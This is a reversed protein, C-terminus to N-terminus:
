AAARRLRLTTAAALLTVGAALLLSTRIGTRFGDGVTGHVAGGLLSGFVAVALAGGLQRTANFVGSAIGALREPVANLLLGTVPPIIAPGAIGVVTMLASIAAVPTGSPSLALATLGATMLLLGGGVLAPAGVGEAIRASAPTLIAGALMMPLFVLGTQAASLGRVEQLYLSQVFPLGYYAVVFAFGVVAAVQVTRSRALEGPVMPHRGRRQTTVFTLAAGGAAVFGVVVQVSGFGDAGAEITAFVLAGMAVVASLQGPVDVPRGHGRSRPVLALMLLVAAGAPVNLFFILRWSVETLLGGVLPGSTSAVAAGFAWIGVARTRALLDPFASGLLAMSAPTLVAAAAGQAFRSVVLASIAPALGCAVSSGVFVVTGAAMATRAGIRDSLAGASLLLAAFMVTYGDVVWQLGSIGGGLDRRVAPLAVNVVVADLTIVFFTLVSATLAARTRRTTREDEM